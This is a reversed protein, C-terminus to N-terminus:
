ILTKNSNELKIAFHLSYRIGSKLPKVEHEQKRGFMFLEGTAVDLKEGSIMFEGGEYDNNLLYGGSFLIKEKANEYDDTHLGFFDDKQYILLTLWDSCKLDTNTNKLDRDIIDKVFSFEPISNIYFWINKKLDSDQIIYHESWDKSHLVELIKDVELQTM